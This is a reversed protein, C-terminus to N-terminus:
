LSWSAGEGAEAAESIILRFPLGHRVEICDVIGNGVGAIAAFMERVEAKLVFDALALRPRSDDKAGFRLERVVKPPPRFIPEGDAVVLQEIRGFSLAQMLSILLQKNPELASWREPVSDSAFATRRKKSKDM